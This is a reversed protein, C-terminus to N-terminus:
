HSFSNINEGFTNGPNHYSANLPNTGFGSHEIRYMNMAELEFWRYKLYAGLLRSERKLAKIEPVTPADPERFFLTNYYQTLTQQILIFM